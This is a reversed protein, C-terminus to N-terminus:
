VDVEKSPLMVLVFNSNDEGKKKEDVVQKIKLAKSSEKYGSKGSMADIAKKEMDEYLYDDIFNKISMHSLFKRWMSPNNTKLDEDLELSTKSLNNKFDKQFLRALSKFELREEKTLGADNDIVKLLGYDKEKSKAM